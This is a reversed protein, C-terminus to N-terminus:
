PWDIRTPERCSAAHCANCLKRGGGRRIRQFKTRGYKDLPGTQGCLSLGEVSTTAPVLHVHETAGRVPLLTRYNQNSVLSM